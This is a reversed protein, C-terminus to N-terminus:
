KILTMKRTINQTATRLQYMYLGTPLNTADFRVNYNGAPQTRNVLVAVERGILNYVSLRVQESSNLQYSIETTPNFPNPYNQDLSISGPTGFEDEISTGVPGAGFYARRVLTTDHIFPNRNGQVTAIETSRNVETEDVPDADHWTLLVDKMGDFFAANDTNDSTIDTNDQYIAWFYFIARAVNGKHDERPEFSTGSLLESYEDINSTPISSQSSGERYWTSTQNDPIEDFPHNSRAGNVDVRTPYLHHIDSRMPSAKDFYSQPWIHETNFDNAEQINDGNPDQANLRDTFQITYGTYVCSITGDPGDIEEFMADRAGSYSQSNTVSYNAQLYDILEDATLQPAIAEDQAFLSQSLLLPLLLLYKKM